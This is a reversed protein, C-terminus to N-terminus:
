HNSHTLGPTKVLEPKLILEVIHLLRLQSLPAHAFDPIFWDQVIAILRGNATSVKVPLLREAGTVGSSVIYIASVAPPSEQHGWALEEDKSALRVLLLKGTFNPDSTECVALGDRQFVPKLNSGPDYLALQDTLGKIGALLNTPCVRVPIAGLDAAEDSIKILFPTITRVPPTPIKLNLVITEGAPLVSSKIAVKDGVPALTSSSIQWLRYFLTPSSSTFGSNQIPLNIEAPTGSFVFSEESPLLKLDAAAVGGFGYFLLVSILLCVLTRGHDIPIKM